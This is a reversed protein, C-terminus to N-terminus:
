AEDKMAAAARAELMEARLRLESAQTALWRNHWDCIRSYEDAWVRKIELRMLKEVRRAPLRVNRAVWDIARDRGDLVRADVGERLRRGADVAELTASVSQSWIQASKKSM